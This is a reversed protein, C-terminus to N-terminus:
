DGVVAEVEPLIQGDEDDYEPAAEEAVKDPGGDEDDFVTRDLLKRALRAEVGHADGMGGSLGENVEVGEIGGGVVMEGRASEEVVVDEGGEGSHDPVELEEEVGHPLSPHALVVEGTPGEVHGADDDECGEPTEEQFLPTSGAEAGPKKYGNTEKKEDGGSDDDAVAVVEFGILCSDGSVSLSHHIREIVDHLAYKRFFMM